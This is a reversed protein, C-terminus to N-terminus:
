PASLIKLTLNRVVDSSKFITCGRVVKICKGNSNNIETSPVTCKLTYRM